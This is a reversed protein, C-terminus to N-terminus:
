VCQHFSSSFFIINIDMVLTGGLKTAIEIFVNNQLFFSSFILFNLRFNFIDLFQSQTSFLYFLVALDALFLYHIQSICTDISPVEM